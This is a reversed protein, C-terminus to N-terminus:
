VTADGPHTGVAVQQGSSDSHAIFFDLAFHVARFAIADWPIDGPDFLRVELSEKGPAVDANNLAALFSMYVQNVQPISYVALLRIITVDANAEERAERMAGAEVSEGNEMFGSPFTWLGHRPEIARRCLLIRGERVPICGVVLKPNEYHVMGCGTCVFRFRSDGEPIRPTVKQGCTSCYNM